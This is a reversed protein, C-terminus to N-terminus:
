GSVFGDDFGCVSGVGSRGLAAEVAKLQAALLSRLLLLSDKPPKRPPAPGSVSAQASFVVNMNTQTPTLLM